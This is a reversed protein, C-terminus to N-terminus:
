GAYTRPSRTGTCPSNEFVGQLYSEPCGLHILSGLLMDGSIGGIPDIILIRM